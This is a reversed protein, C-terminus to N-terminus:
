RVSSKNIELSRQGWFQKKLPGYYYYIRPVVEFVEKSVLDVKLLFRECPLRGEYDREFWVMSSFNSLPENFKESGPGQYCDDLWSQADGVQAPIMSLLIKDSVAKTLDESQKILEKALIGESDAAQWGVDHFGKSHPLAMEHLDPLHCYSPEQVWLKCGHLPGRM